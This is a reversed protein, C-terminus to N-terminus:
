YGKLLDSPKVKLAKAIRHLTAMTFPQGSEVKQLHRWSPYGAAEVDELTLKKQERVSRINLGVVRLFKDTDSGKGASKKKAM